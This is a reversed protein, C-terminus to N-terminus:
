AHGYFRMWVDMRNLRNFERKLHMKLAANRLAMSYNPAIGESGDDMRVVSIKKGSVPADLIENKVVNDGGLSRSRMRSFGPYDRCVNLSDVPGLDHARDDPGTWILHKGDEMKQLYTRGIHVVASVSLEMNLLKFQQPSLPKEGICFLEFEQLRGLVQELDRSSNQLVTM